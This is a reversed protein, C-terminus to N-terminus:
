VGRKDFYAKLDKPNRLIMAELKSVGGLKHTNAELIELLRKVAEKCTKSQNTSRYYNGQFYIDIKKHTKM